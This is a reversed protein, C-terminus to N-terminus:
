IYLECSLGMRPGTFRYQADERIGDEFRMIDIIRHDIGLDLWVAASDFRYGISVAADLRLGTGSDFDHEPQPEGGTDGDALIVIVHQPWMLCWSAGVSTKLAFREDPNTPLYTLEGGACVQNGAIVGIFVPLPITAKARLYLDDILRPGVAGQFGWSYLDGHEWALFATDMGGSLSLWPAAASCTALVACLTAARVM